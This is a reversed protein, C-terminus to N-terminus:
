KEQEYNKVIIKQNIILIFALKTGFGLRLISLLRSLEGLIGASYHCFHVFIGKFFTEVEPTKALSIQHHNTIMM